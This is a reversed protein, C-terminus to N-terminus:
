SQMEWLVHEVRYNQQLWRQCLPTNIRFANNQDGALTDMAALNRLALWLGENGLREGAGTGAIDEFGSWGDEGAGSAVAVLALKYELLKAPDVVMGEGWQHSFYQEGQKPLFDDLFTTLEAMGVASLELSTAHTHLNSCLLQLFYPHGATLAILHEVM